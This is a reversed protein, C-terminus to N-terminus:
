VYTCRLVPFNVNVNVLCYGPSEKILTLTSFFMIILITIEPM